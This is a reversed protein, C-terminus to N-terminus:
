SLVGSSDTSLLVGVGKGAGLPWFMAVMLFERVMREIRRGRRLGMIVLVVLLDREGLIIRVHSQLMKKQCRSTM